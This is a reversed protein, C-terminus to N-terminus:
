SYRRRKFSVTREYDEIKGIRRLDGWTGKYYPIVNEDVAETTIDGATGFPYAFLLFVHNHKIDSELYAMAYVSGYDNYIEVVDGSELALSSADSPNIEMFAMPYRARRFEMYQDHYASQWIHNARGNNIWFRYKDKQRQVPALYGKWPSEKFHAKDDETDFRGDRYLMETGTLEGGRYEKVPLQVGNNGM